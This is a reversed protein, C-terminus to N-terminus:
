TRGIEHHMYDGVSDKKRNKYLWFGIVGVIGVVWLFSNNKSKADNIQTNCSDQTIMSSKQSECSTRASDASAKESRCAELNASCETSKTEFTGRSESVSTLSSSCETYKGLYDLCNGMSSIVQSCTGTLNSFSAELNITPEEATATKVYVTYDIDKRYETGNNFRYDIRLLMDYSDRKATDPITFSLTKSKESNADVDFWDQVKELDDGTISDIRGVFKFRMTSNEHNYVRVNMDLIDKPVVDIDGGSADVDSAREDNVYVKVSEVTMDALAIPLMCLMLVLILYIKM